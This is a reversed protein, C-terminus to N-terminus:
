FSLGPLRYARYEAVSTDLEYMHTGDRGVEEEKSPPLLGGAFFLDGNALGQASGLALWFSGLPANLLLTAVHHQEDLKYVQGRSACGKVKGGGCRVNGNDFVALTDATLYNANHQHTFWPFPDSSAITFDGGKGLRWVVKGTGHGDRYDIKITADINRFSITIDHDKPSWSLGNAHTWDFARQDPLACMTAPSASLCTDGGAPLHAPPTFHDFVDWTWVVQLNADLVILMDGMVNHSGFKKQTAGLVATDGNPLRLADHHFSYIREQGRSALQANVAEITTERVSDGALDVERLVDAGIARNADRGLVLFTGGPLIHVALVLVLGAHLTDYYWLLHGSLDTAVPNAFAPSPNVNLAHFIVPLGRDARPAPAQKLRFPAFKLGAPPTGTTFSLQGSIAHATGKSVVRRLVYRTSPRMGAVLVNASYGAVCPQAATSQWASSGTAPRFQVVMTGGACAPASYLAVLPNATAQVVATKGTVRSIVPFATTAQMTRTATFGDKVRAQVVYTGERMPTWQFSATRSFDRVVHLTGRSMGVSFRYVPHQLGGVAATWRITTGVPQGSPLSPKLAM